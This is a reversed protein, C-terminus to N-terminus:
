EAVFFTTNANPVVAVRPTGEFEEIWRRIQEEPEASRLLCRDLIATDLESAIAVDFNDLTRGFLYAKHAGMKFGLSRFHELVEQPTRFRSVYEYYVDDGVGQPCAALLLIKGGHKLTQSALNLGKQAQYLCIDRPHGGCSAVVVDFKGSIKVGYVSRCVEAGATLVSVPHGALASVPQKDSDLVLNVVLHIGVMRGAENLDERVPNDSLRGVQARSDFMLGHNHEITKAAALGIVAGKSGGTFGVFQHPDIQGVVIKLDAEAFRANVLVPTGRSTLGLDAMRSNIADHAVITCRAAVTPPIIRRLAHDAMPQHLGGGVIISIASADLHPAISEIQKLLVPLIVGLPSPRTEDPVAIAVTKPAITRITEQFSPNDLPHALAEELAIKLDKVPPLTAPRLITVDAKEPIELRREAEGYKLVVHM